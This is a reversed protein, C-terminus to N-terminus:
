TLTHSGSEGTGGGEYIPASRCRRGREYEHEYEHEYEIGTDPAQPGPVLVLVLVLVFSPPRGPPRARPSGFASGQFRTRRRATTGRRRALADAHAASGAM